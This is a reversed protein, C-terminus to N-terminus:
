PALCKQLEDSTFGVGSIPMQVYSELPAKDDLLRAIFDHLDYSGIGIGSGLWPRTLITLDDHDVPPISVCHSCNDPRFYPVYYAFNQLGDFTDLLDELDMWYMSHIDDPTADPFFREYSYLSYNFDMRYASLGLRDNPYRKSLATNLAGFDNDLTTTSVRLASSLESLLTGLNWAENVTEHLQQSHGDSHFAPGSDNLLYGCQAGPLAARVLAYNQQAGIGGASCGTVFLQPIESFRESLYDLVAHTNALGQHRYTLPPGGAPDEYTAVKDGGHVDGTCYSVFVLNWSNAPNDPTRRLLNLYQYRSLHNDAIGHPNAAGRAGGSCSAFDWCAGGPEFMILLNDSDPAWNVFFKYPSGDSCLAGEPEVKIWQACQPLGSSSSTRSCRKGSDTPTQPKPVCAPPRATVPQGVGPGGSGTVTAGPTPDSSDGGFKLCACLTFSLLCALALAAASRRTGACDPEFRLVDPALSLRLTKRMM